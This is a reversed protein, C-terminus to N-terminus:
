TQAAQQAPPAEPAVPSTCYMCRRAGIPITSLCEPCQRDTPGKKPSVIGAIRNTPMVVLFYIAAAIVVFAVLANLFNGYTFVSHNVTFHLNSFNPKGGVAAILPTIIDKVLAQVVTNFALGIVVAVALDILNGRLLFNKFGRM